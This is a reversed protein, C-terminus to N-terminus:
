ESRVYLRSWQHARSSSNILKESRVVLMKTEEFRNKKPKSFQAASFVREECLMAFQTCYFFGISLSDESKKGRASADFTRSRGQHSERLKKNAKLTCLVIGPCIPRSRKVNKEACQSFRNCSENCKIGRMNRVDMVRASPSAESSSSARKM